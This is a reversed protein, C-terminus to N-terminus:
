IGPLNNYVSKIHSTGQNVNPEIIGMSPLTLLKQKTQASTSYM